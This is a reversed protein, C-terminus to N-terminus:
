RSLTTFERKHVTVRLRQEYEKIQIKAGTDTFLTFRFILSAM